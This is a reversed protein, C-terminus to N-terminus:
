KDEPFNLCAFEGFALKAVKDYCKAATKECTFIGLRIINGSIFVSATWKSGDDYPYVGKYGSGKRRRRNMSNQHRTCIRLNSKQNNLGNGDRHDVELGKPCNMIFRHMGVWIRYSKKAGEKKSTYQRVAYCLDKHKESRWKHKILDNYDEDDVLVFTDPYTPTSINIKRM